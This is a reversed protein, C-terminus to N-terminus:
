CLYSTILEKEDSNDNDLSAVMQHQYVTWITASPMDSDIFARKLRDSFESHKEGKIPKLTLCNQRRIFNPNSTQFIEEIHKWIVVEGAKEINEIAGLKNKLMPDMKSSLIHWYQTNDVETGHERIYKMWIDFSTKFDKMESIECEAKLEQKPMICKEFAGLWVKSQNKTDSQNAAASPEPKKRKRGVLFKINSTTWAGIADEIEEEKSDAEAAAAKADTRAKIAMPLTAEINSREIYGSMTRVQSTLKEHERMTDKLIKNEKQVEEYLDDLFDERGSGVEGEQEVAKIQIIVRDMNKRHKLVKCRLTHAKSVVSVFQNATVTKPLKDSNYVTPSDEVTHVETDGEKGTEAADKEKDQDSMTGSARISSLLDSIESESYNRSTQESESGASDSSQDSQVQQIEQFTNSSGAIQNNEIEDCISASLNAQGPLESELPDATGALINGLLDTELNGATPEVSSEFAAEIDALQGARKRGSRLIGAIVPGPTVSKERIVEPETNKPRRGAMITVVCM